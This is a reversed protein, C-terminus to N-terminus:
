RNLSTSIRQRLEALRQTERDLEELCALGIQATKVSQSYSGDDNKKVMGKEMLTNLCRSITSPSENLGKSIQGHSLGKSVHGNLALLVDLVRAASDNIKSRTEAM